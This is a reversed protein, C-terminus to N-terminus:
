NLNTLKDIAIQIKKRFWCYWRENSFKHKLRTPFIESTLKNFEPSTIYKSHDPIKALNTISPIENKAENIKTNLTTNTTLNTIDPIKDEIDKIRANYLDEKVVDEKVANRLKSSDVPTTVWKGIDLKDVKSKLNSLGSPINKFQDINLKDVDSKLNGLDTKKAFALTDVATANKLYTKTVYKSM